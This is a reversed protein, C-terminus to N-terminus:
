PFPIDLFDGRKWVLQYRNEPSEHALLRAWCISVSDEALPSPYKSSAQIENWAVVHANVYGPIRGKYTREGEHSGAQAKKNPDMDHVTYEGIKEDNVYVNWRLFCATEEVVGVIMPGQRLAVDILTQNGHTGLYRRIQERLHLSFQEAYPLSFQAPEVQGSPPFRDYDSGHNVFELGHAVVGELSVPIRRALSSPVGAIEGSSETM